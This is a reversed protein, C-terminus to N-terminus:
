PLKNIDLKSKKNELFRQESQCYFLTTAQARNGVQCSPLHKVKLDQHCQVVLCKKTPAHIFKETHCSTACLRSKQCKKNTKVSRSQSWYIKITCEEVRDRQTTLRWLFKFSLVSILSSSSSINVSWSQSSPLFGHEEEERRLFRLVGRSGM